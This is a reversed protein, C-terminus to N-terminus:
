EYTSTRMVAASGWERRPSSAQSGFRDFDPEVRDVILAERPQASREVLVQALDLRREVDGDGAAARLEGDLALLGLARGLRELV